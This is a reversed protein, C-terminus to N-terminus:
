KKTFFSSISKTGSAAKAMKKDKTSVKKEKISPPSITEVMNATAFDEETKIRKLTNNELEILSKRKGAAVPKIKELGLHDSLKECLELTIYDSLIGYAYSLFEADIQQDNGVKETKVYNTSKAGIHFNSERLTKALKKCKLSLWNMAKTENYKFAKLSEVGKQDAIMSLQEVTLVDAILHANAFNDDVITQDIPQCKDSCNLRIYYLAWFLPDFPSTMYINGNPYVSENAFWCRHEESFSLLEFFQNKGKAFLYKSAKETSPNRLSIIQIDDSSKDALNADLLFVRNDIHKKVAAIKNQDSQAPKGRTRTTM